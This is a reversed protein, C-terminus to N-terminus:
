LMYTCVFYELYICIVKVDLNDHFRSRYSGSEKSITNPHSSVAQLPSQAVQPPRSEASEKSPPSSIQSPLKANSADAVETPPVDELKPTSNYETVEAIHQMDLDSQQRKSLPPSTSKEYIAEKAQSYFESDSKTLNILLRHVEEKTIRTKGFSKGRRIESENKSQRTTGQSALVKAETPNAHSLYNGKIISRLFQFAKKTARKKCHARGRGSLCQFTPLPNAEKGDEVQPAM